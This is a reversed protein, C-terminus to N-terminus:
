ILLKKLGWEKQSSVMVILVHLVNNLVDKCIVTVRLNLVDLVNLNVIWIIQQMKLAYKVVTEKHVMM